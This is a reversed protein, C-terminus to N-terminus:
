GQGAARKMRRRMERLGAAVGTGPEQGARMAATFPDRIKTLVRGRVSMMNDLSANFGAAQFAEIRARDSRLKGNSM